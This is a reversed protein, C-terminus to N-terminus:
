DEKLEPLEDDLSKINCKQAYRGCMMDGSSYNSISKDDIFKIVFNSKLVVFGDGKSVVEYNASYLDNFVTITEELIFKDTIIENIALGLNMDVCGLLSADGYTTNYHIIIEAMEKIAKEGSVSQMDEFINVLENYIKKQMKLNFDAYYTWKKLFQITLTNNNM